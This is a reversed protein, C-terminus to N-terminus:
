NRKETLLVLNEVGGIRLSEMLSILQIADVQADARIKIIQGPHDRKQERAYQMLAAQDVEIDDLQVKGDKTLLLVTEWQGAPDESISVPPTVDYGDTGEVRSMMMVFILLLFVVNILPLIPDFLQQKKQKKPFQM